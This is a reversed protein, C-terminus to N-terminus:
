TQYYHNILFHNLDVTNLQRYALKSQQVFYTLIGILLLHNQPVVRRIRSFNIRIVKVSPRVVHCRSCLGAPASTSGCVCVCMRSGGPSVTLSPARGDTAPILNSAVKGTRVLGRRNMLVRRRIRVPLFGRHSSEGDLREGAVRGWVCM